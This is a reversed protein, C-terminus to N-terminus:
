TSSSVCRRTLMSRCVGALVFLGVGVEDVKVGEGVDDLLRATARVLGGDLPDDHVGDVLVEVFDDVLHDVPEEGLECVVVDSEIALREVPGDDERTPHGTNGTQDFLELCAQAFFEVPGDLRRGRVTRFESDRSAGLADGLAEDPTRLVHGLVRSSRTVM